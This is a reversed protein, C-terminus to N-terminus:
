IHPSLKSLTVCKHISLLQPAVEDPADAGETSPGETELASPDTPLYAQAAAAFVHTLPLHRTRVTSFSSKPAQPPPKFLGARVAM